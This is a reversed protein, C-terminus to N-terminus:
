NSKMIQIRYKTLSYEWIAVTDHIWNTCEATFDIRMVNGM